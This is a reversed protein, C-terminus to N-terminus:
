KGFDYTGTLAGRLFAEALSPHLIEKLADEKAFFRYSDVEWNPHLDKSPLVASFNLMLVDHPAFYHSRNFHLSLPAVGLEEQLERKAADEADEGPNVYGAVLINAKRGYQQILLIEQEDPSFCILSVAVSYHPFRFTQCQECYPVLDPEGKVPKEVLKSGCIPCFIDKM